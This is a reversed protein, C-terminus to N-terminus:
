YTGAGGERELQRKLRSARLISQKRGLVNFRWGDKGRLKRKQKMFTLGYKSGPLMDIYPKGVDGRIGGACSGDGFLQLVSLSNWQSAEREEAGVQCIACTKKGNTRDRREVRGEIREDKQIGDKANAL